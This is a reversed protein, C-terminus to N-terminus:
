GADNMSWSQREGPIGLEGELLLSLQQKQEGTYDGTLDVSWPVPMGNETRLQLRIGLRRIGLRRAADWIYEETKERIIGSCLDTSLEEADERLSSNHRKQATILDTLNRADLGRLPQILLLTLMAACTLRLARKEGGEPVLLQAVACFVAGVAMTRVWSALAEIM